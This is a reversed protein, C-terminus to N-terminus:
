TLKWGGLLSPPHVGTTVEDFRSLRQKEAVVSMGIWGFVFGASFAALM